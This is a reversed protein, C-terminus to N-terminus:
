YVLSLRRRIGIEDNENSIFEKRIFGPIAYVRIAIEARLLNEIAYKSNSVILYFYTKEKNLQFSKCLIFYFVM